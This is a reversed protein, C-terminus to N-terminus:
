GCVDSSDLRTADYVCEDAPPESKQVTAPGPTGVLQEDGTQRASSTGESLLVRAADQPSACRDAGPAGSAFQVVLCWPEAGTLEDRHIHAKYRCEVGAREPGQTVAVLTAGVPVGFVEKQDLGTSNQSFPFAARDTALADADACPVRTSEFYSLTTVTDIAPRLIQAQYCCQQWGSVPERERFHDVSKIRVGDELQKQAERLGPCPAAPDVRISAAGPVERPACLGCGALLSALALAALRM